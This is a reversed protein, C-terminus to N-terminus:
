RVNNDSNIRIPTSSGDLKIMDDPYFETKRFNNKISFKQNRFLFKINKFNDLNALTPSKM